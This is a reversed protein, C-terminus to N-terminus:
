KTDSSMLLSSTVAVKGTNNKHALVLMSDQTQKALLYRLPTVKKKTANIFM